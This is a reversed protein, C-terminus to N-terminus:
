LHQQLHHNVPPAVEPSAVKFTTPPSPIVAFALSISSSKFLLPPATISLLSNAISRPADLIVPVNATLSPPVPAVVNFSRIVNPVCVVPM